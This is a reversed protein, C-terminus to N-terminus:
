CWLVRETVVKRAVNDVTDLLQKFLRQIGKHLSAHLLCKRELADQFEMKKGKTTERLDKTSEREKSAETRKSTAIPDM